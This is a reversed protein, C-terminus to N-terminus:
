CLSLGLRVCALQCPPPNMTIMPAHAHIVCGSSGSKAVLFCFRCREVSSISLMAIQARAIDAADILLVAHRAATLMATGLAQGTSSSSDRRARNGASSGQTPQAALM